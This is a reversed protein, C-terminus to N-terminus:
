KKRVSKKSNEMTRTMVINKLKLIYEDDFLRYGNWDRKEVDKIIGKEIWHFLTRKHIGVIKCAEITTYYTVGDIVKYM